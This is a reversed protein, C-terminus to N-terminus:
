LEAWSEITWEYNGVDLKSLEEDYHISAGGVNNLSKAVFAGSLSGNGSLTINAQPAYYIGYLDGNGSLKIDTNNTSGYYLYKSAIGNYNVIGLGGISASQGDMYITLSANSLVFVGGQGTITIDSSIRLEANGTVIMNGQGSLRLKDLYYKGNGLIFAYNTGAYKGKDPAVGVFAAIPSDPVTFPRLANDVWGPEIGTQTSNWNTDGVAGNQIAVSGSSLTSIKGYVLSNGIDVCGPTMGLCLINGHDRRNALTYPGNTSSFSDVIANGGNGSVTNLLLLANKLIGPNKEIVEVTRSVFNSGAGGPIWAAGKSVIRAFNNSIITTTFYNSGLHRTKTVTNAGASVWGNSVLNTLGNRTLHAHGEEIGAEAVTLAMNWNESRSAKRVEFSVLGLYAVLSIMLLTITILSIVLTSAQVKSIQISLKM